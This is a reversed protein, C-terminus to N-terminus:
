IAVVDVEVEANETSWTNQESGRDNFLETPIAVCLLIKLVTPTGTILQTNFPAFAVTSAYPWVPEPFVKVM